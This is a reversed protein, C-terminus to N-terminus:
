DIKRPEPIKKAFSTYIFCEDSNPVYFAVLFINENDNNKKGIEINSKILNLQVPDTFTDLDDFSWFKNSNMNVLTNVFERDGERFRLSIIKDKNEVDKEKKFIGKDAMLSIIEYIIGNRANNSSIYPEYVMTDTPYFTCKNKEDFFLRSQYMSLNTTVSKIQEGDKDIKVPLKWPLLVNTYLEFPSFRYPSM